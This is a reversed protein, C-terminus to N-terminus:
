RCCRDPATRTRCPRWPRGSGRSGSPTTRSGRRPCSCRAGEVSFRVLYTVDRRASMVAWVDTAVAKVAPKLDRARRDANQQRAIMQAATPAPRTVVATSM